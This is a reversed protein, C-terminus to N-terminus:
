GSGDHCRARRLGRELCRCRHFPGAPLLPHAVESHSRRRCARRSAPFGRSLLRLRDGHVELYWGNCGARHRKFATNFAHQWPPCAM